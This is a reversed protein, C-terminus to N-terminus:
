SFIVYAESGITVNSLRITVYKSTGVAIIQSSGAQNTDFSGGSGAILTIVGTGGNIILCEVCAGIALQSGVINRIAAVLLAATPLTGNMAGSNGNVIIGGVIDAAVYVTAGTYSAPAPMNYIMPNGVLVAQGQADTNAGPAFTM